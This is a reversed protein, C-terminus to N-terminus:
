PLWRNGGINYKVWLVVGHILRTEVAPLRKGRASVDIKRLRHRAVRHTDQSERRPRRDNKEVTTGALILRADLADLLIAHNRRQACPTIHLALRPQRHGQDRDRICMESGM